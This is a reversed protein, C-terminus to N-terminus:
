ANEACEIYIKWDNGKNKGFERERVLDEKLGNLLSEINKNEDRVNEIENDDKKMPLVENVQKKM